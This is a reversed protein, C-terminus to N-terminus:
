KKSECKCLWRFRISFGNWNEILCKNRTKNSPANISLLWANMTQVIHVYYQIHAPRTFWGSAINVLRRWECGNNESIKNIVYLTIRLVRMFLLTRRRVVLKKIKVNVRISEFSLRNQIKVFVRKWHFSVAQVAYSHFSKCQLSYKGTTVKFLHM